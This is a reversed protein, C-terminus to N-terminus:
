KMLWSIQDHYRSYFLDTSLKSMQSDRGLKETLLDWFKKSHGHVKFHCLEHIIVEERIGWPLLVLMTHFNIHGNIYNCNGYAKRLKKIAVSKSYLGVRKEVNHLEVPLVQNGRIIVAEKVANRLWSQFRPREFVASSLYYISFVEDVQTHFCVCKKKEIYCDEKPFMNAGQALVNEPVAQWVLVFTDTQLRMNPNIYFTNKMVQRYELIQRVM